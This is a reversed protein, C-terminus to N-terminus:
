VGNEKFFEELIFCAAISDVDGDPLKSNKLYEQARVSSLTEDAFCIEIDVAKKLKDTFDRIKKSQKTEDGELSKPLGVIILRVDDNKILKEIKPIIENTSVVGYPRSIRAISGALALGAKNDGYDIGLVYGDSPLRLAM